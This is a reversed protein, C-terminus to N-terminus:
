RDDACAAYIYYCSICNLSTALVKDSLVLSQAVLVHLKLILALVLIKHELILGLVLVNKAM